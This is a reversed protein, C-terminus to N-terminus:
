ASPHMSSYAAFNGLELQLIPAQLQAELLLDDASYDRGHPQHVRLCGHFSGTVIKGAHATM